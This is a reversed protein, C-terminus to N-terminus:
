DAFESPDRHCFNPITPRPGRYTQEAAVAIHYPHHVPDRDLPSPMGLDQYPPARPHIPQYPRTPQPFGYGTRQAPGSSLRSHVSASQYQPSPTVRGESYYDYEERAWDKVQQTRRPLEQLYPRSESDERATRRMCVQDKVLQLEKMMRDLRDITPQTSPSQPPVYDRTQPSLELREEEDRCQEELPPPKGSHSTSSWLPSPPRQILKGSVPSSSQPQKSQFSHATSVRRELDAKTEILEMVETHMAQQSQRLRANERRVECLEDRTTHEQSPRCLPVPERCWERPESEPHRPRALQEGPGNNPFRDERTFAARQQRSYSLTDPSHPLTM